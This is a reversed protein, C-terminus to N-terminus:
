RSKHGHYVVTTEKKGSSTMDKFCHPRACFLEREVMVNREAKKRTHRATADRMAPDSAETMGGVRAPLDAVLTPRLDTVLM